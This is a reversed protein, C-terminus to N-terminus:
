CQGDISTLLVANVDKISEMRFGTLGPPAGTTFAALLRDKGTWRPGSRDKACRFSGPEARLANWAV